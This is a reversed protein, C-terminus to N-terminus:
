LCHPPKPLGALRAIHRAPSNPFLALLALSDLQNRDLHIRLFKILPRMGPAYHYERYFARSAELIELHAPGLEMQHLRALQEAVAPTWAHFDALHGDQDLSLENAM